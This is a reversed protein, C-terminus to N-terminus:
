HYPDGHSCNLTMLLRKPRGSVGIKMILRVLLLCLLEEEEHLEPQELGVLKSVKLGDRGRLLYNELFFYLLVSAFMM